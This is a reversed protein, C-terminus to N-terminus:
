YDSEPVVEGGAYTSLARYAAPRISEALFHVSGDGFLFNCGGPHRSRFGSVFDVRRENYGSNDLGIITPTAPTRNMKEDDPQDGMGYQATVALVSGYWPHWPDGMSSAAWSQEIPVTQNTIPYITAVDPQKLARVPYYTSGGAADGMFITNSLGDSIDDFRRYSTGFANGAAANAYFLNFVGRVSMPLREEGDLSANAGKCFAYDCGAAQPPMDCGWQAKIPELDLSGTKRNSPCYFLTVEIGVATYNAKDFWPRDFDYLRHLNGQELYPLLYTFGTAWSDQTNGTTYVGPPLYHSSDHYNHLALGLQKLHNACALRNAAERVRQVAPLMLGILVGIIAIVVLLEILTFGRRATKNRDYM